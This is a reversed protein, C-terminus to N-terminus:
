PLFLPLASQKICWRLRQQSRGISRLTALLHARLEALNDPRGNALSRKALSWVGEDPNLEPAYSPFAELRLRPFRRCLARVPDGKHIRGNDWILIVPGRLHRLLHRVFDCALVQNINTEHLRYYLGLRQRRPSVSVASIISIRDRRQRHHM